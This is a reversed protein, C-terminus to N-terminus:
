GLRTQPWTHELAAVSGDRGHLCGSGNHFVAEAALSRFDVMMTRNSAQVAGLLARVMTHRLLLAMRPPPRSGPGAPRACRCWGQSMTRGESQMSSRKVTGRKCAQSPNDEKSRGKRAEQKQDMRSARSGQVKSVTLVRLSCQPRARTVKKYQKAEVKGSAQKLPTSAVVTSSSPLSEVNYVTSQHTRLAM